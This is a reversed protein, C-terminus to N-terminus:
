NCVLSPPQYPQHSDIKSVAMKMASPITLLPPLPALWWQVHRADGALYVPWVPWVTSHRQAM